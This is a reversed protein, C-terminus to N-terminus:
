AGNTPHPTSDDSSDPAAPGDPGDDLSEALRRRTRDFGYGTAIFLLGLLLFLWAGTFITAFIAFAQFTTFVVLALTALAPLLRSDRLTGVVAVGLALAVYLLVSFISRLTDTGSIELASGSTPWAALGLALVLVLVVGMTERAALVSGPVTRRQLAVAAVAVAGTLAVVVIQWTLLTLEFEEGVPVAATFLTILAFSAGVGRWVAGFDRRWREHLAGVAVTLVAGVGLLLVADAFTEISEASEAMSWAVVGALGLLLPLYAGLLYAQILAALGWAGVLSMDYAPVQLSQAAQFIVGGIAFAALLRLAGVALPRIGRSHAVEAGVLTALWLATIGVFRTLPSFEDLNAAVLWILGVGVFCAGLVLLIRGLSARRSATYRALIADAQGADITGDVQWSAVQASLWQLHSPSATVSAAAPLPPRAEPPEVRSFMNTM